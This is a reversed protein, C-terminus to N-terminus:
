AFHAIINKIQTGTLKSFNNANYFQVGKVKKIGIKSFLEFINRAKQTKKCLNERIINSLHKLIANYVQIRVQQNKVRKDNDKVDKVSKEFRKKAKIAKQFLRALNQSISGEFGEDEDNTETTEGQNNNRDANNEADNIINSLESIEKVYAILSTAQDHTTVETKKESQSALSDEDEITDDSLLDKKRFNKNKSVIHYEGSSLHCPNLKSTHKDTIESTNRLFNLSLAKLQFIEIDDAHIELCSALLESTIYFSILRIRLFNIESIFTESILIKSILM